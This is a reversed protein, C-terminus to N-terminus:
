PIRHSDHNSDQRHHVWRAVPTTDDFVMDDFVTDDFVTDDFVTDDFVTDDFVM